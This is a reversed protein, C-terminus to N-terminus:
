GPRLAAPLRRSSFGPDLDAPVLVAVAIRGRGPGLLDRRLAAAWTLGTVKEIVEGLILRHRWEV